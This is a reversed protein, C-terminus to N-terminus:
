RILMVTGKRLFSKGNRTYNMKWSYMGPVSRVGNYFGNWGKAIDKSVFIENGWRDYIRLEFAELRFYARAKLVDNLGNGDPTFANPLFVEQSCEQVKVFVDQVDFGCVNSAEVTYLGEASVYILPATSGDSWLYQDANPATADLLASDTFCILTDNLLPIVPTNNTEIVLTDSRNCVGDSSILTYTGATNFTRQPSTSGDNWQFTIAPAGSADALLSDDDCLLEYVPIQKALTNTRVTVQTSTAATCGGRTIVNLSYNGGQAASSNPLSVASDTSLLLGNLRWNYTLASVNSRLKLTDQECIAVTGLISVAGPAFVRLERVPSVARCNASNINVAEATLLRYLGSHFPQANNIILSTTQAGTINNWLIGDSSFQWQYAPNQYFGGAVNGAFSVATGACVDGSNQYTGTVVPNMAPGCLTFEIDDLCLDNGQGGPQNNFIRLIVDNEGSPLSFNFGYRTWTFSNFRPISPTTYTALVTGTAASAIEFRVVPDLPDQSGARLLNAIWASFFLQSGSCLNSVRTEYFKGPTFDANIMMMHGGSRDFGIHWSQFIPGGTNIDATSRRIGYEGDDITGTSDFRYTTINSPLRSGTFPPVSSGGFNELFLVNGTCQALSQKAFLVSIFLLAALCAKVFLCKATLYLAFARALCGPSEYFFWGYSCVDFSGFLPVAWLEKTFLVGPSFIESCPVKFFNIKLNQQHSRCIIM